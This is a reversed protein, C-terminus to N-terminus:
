ATSSSHDGANRSDLRDIYVGQSVFWKWGQLKNFVCKACDTENPTQYAESRVGAVSKPYRHTNHASMSHIQCEDSEIYRCINYTEFASNPRNNPEINKQSNNIIWNCYERVSTDYKKEYPCVDNSSGGSKM